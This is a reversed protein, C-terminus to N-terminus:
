KIIEQIEEYEKRAQAEDEPSVEGGAAVIMKWDDLIERLQDAVDKTISTLINQVIRKTATLQESKPMVAELVNFIQAKGTNYITQGVCEALWQADLTGTVESQKDVLIGGKLNAKSQKARAVVFAV